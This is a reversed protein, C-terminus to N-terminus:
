GAPHDPHRIPLSFYYTVGKGPLGNAWIIGGHAAIIERARPLSGPRPEGVFLTDRQSADLGSGPSKVAFMLANRNAKVTLRLRATASARATAERLLIEVAEKMLDRDIPHETLEAAIQRTIPRVADGAAERARLCEEVLEGLRLPEPDFRM